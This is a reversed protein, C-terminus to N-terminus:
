IVVRGDIEGRSGIVTRGPALGRNLDQHGCGAYCVCLPVKTRVCVGIIIRFGIQLDYVWGARDQATWKKTTQAFKSERKSRM